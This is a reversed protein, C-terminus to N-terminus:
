FFSLFREFNLISLSGRGQETGRQYRLEAEAGEEVGRWRGGWLEAKKGQWGLGLGDV